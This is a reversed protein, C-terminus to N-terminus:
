CRQRRNIHALGQRLERVRIHEWAVAQPVALPCNRQLDVAPKSSIATSRVGSAWRTIHQELTASPTEMQNAQVHRAATSSLSTVVESGSQSQRGATSLVQEHEHEHEHLQCQQCQQCRAPPCASM